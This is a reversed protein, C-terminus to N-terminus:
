AVGMRKVPWSTDEDDLPKGTKRRYEAFDAMQTAAWAVQRRHLEHPDVQLQPFCVALRYAVRLSGLVDSAADHAQDLKVGYHECLDTLKRGGKRFRDVEKDLIRVDIIPAVQALRQDLPEVGHRVCEAHLLSLDYPANMIVVPINALLAAAIETTVEEVVERIPRGDARAMETTVGHIDSAGVPIEVGPDALWRMIETAEGGGAKVIACTVIRDKRVDVGSSEFDLGYLRSRHWAVLQPETM